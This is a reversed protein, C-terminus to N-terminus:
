VLTYITQALLSDLLAVQESEWCVTFLGLSQLLMTRSCRLGGDNAKEATNWRWRSYILMECDVLRQKWSLLMVQM